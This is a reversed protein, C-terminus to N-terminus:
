SGYGGGPTRQVFYLNWLAFKFIHLNSCCQQVMVVDSTLTWYELYESHTEWVLQIEGVLQYKGRIRVVIILKWKEKVIVPVGASANRAQNHYIPRYISKYKFQM